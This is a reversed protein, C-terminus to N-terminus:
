ESLQSLIKKAKLEKESIITNQYLMMTYYQSYERASWPGIKVLEGTTWTSILIQLLQKLAKRKLTEAENMETEVITQMSSIWTTNSADSM